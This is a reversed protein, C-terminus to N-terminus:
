LGGGGPAAAWSPLATQLNIKEGVADLAQGALSLLMLAGGSVLVVEGFVQPGPLLVWLGM